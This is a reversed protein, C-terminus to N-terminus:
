FRDLRTAPDGDPGVTIRFCALCPGVRPRKKPSNARLEGSLQRNRKCNDQYISWFWHYVGCGCLSHSHAWWGSRVWHAETHEFRITLGPLQALAADLYM